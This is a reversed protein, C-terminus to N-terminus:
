YVGEVPSRLLNDQKLTAHVARLAEEVLLHEQAAAQVWGRMEADLAAATLSRGDGGLRGRRAVPQYM